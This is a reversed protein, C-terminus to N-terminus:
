HAEAILVKTTPGWRALSLARDIPYLGAGVVTAMRSTRTARSVAAWYLRTMSCVFAPRTEVTGNFLWISPRCAIISWGSEEAAHRLFNLSRVRSVDGTAPEDGFALADLLVLLTGPQAMSRLNRLASMYAADDTIHQFVNVASITDFVSDFPPAAGIDGQVVKVGPFRSALRRVTTGAVDCGAVSAAGRRQWYTIWEGTGSGVDLVRGPPRGDTLRSVSSAMARYLWRLFPEPTSLCSAAGLTANDAYRREWYEAHTV